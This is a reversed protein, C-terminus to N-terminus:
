KRHEKRWEEIKKHDGSLLIKPVRYKKNKYEGGSASGGEASFIEPRTYMPVGIGHRKEELSENKGLVGPIQRSVADVVVMAPIEGGTLVYPGISLEQILYGTNHILSKIREDIGEYHGAIMIVRNYKKSMLQAASQNFQKGGASFLIVLTKKYKISSVKYKISLISGIAKALPEIKLVMGPGGGYPRDDVKKRKNSSFKRLDHVRIDILGRERARKIISENFYSDFIKPFITIIDFRM